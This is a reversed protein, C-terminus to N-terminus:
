SADMATQSGHVPNKMVPSVTHRPRSYTNSKGAKRALRSRM